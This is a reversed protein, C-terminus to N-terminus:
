DGNKIKAILKNKLGSYRKEDNDNNIMNYIVDKSGVLVILEKARTVGTYLLNRNALLSPVDLVPIIVAKYESGQSKHITIAYALELQDLMNTEYCVEKGDDFRVKIENKM